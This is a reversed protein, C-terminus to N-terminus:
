TSAELSSIKCAVEAVIIHPINLSHNLQCATDISTVSCSQCSKTTQIFSLLDYESVHGRITLCGRSIQYKGDHNCGAITKWYEGSNQLKFTFYTSGTETAELTNLQQAFKYLNYVPVSSAASDREGNFLLSEM